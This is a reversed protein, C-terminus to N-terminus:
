ARPKQDIVSCLLRVQGLTPNFAITVRSDTILDMVFLEVPEDNMNVVVAAVPKLIAYLKPGLIKAGMALLKERTVSEDDDAKVKGIVHFALREEDTDTLFPGSKDLVREAMERLHKSSIRSM